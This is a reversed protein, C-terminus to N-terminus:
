ASEPNSLISKILKYEDKVNQKILKDELKSDKQCIQKELM